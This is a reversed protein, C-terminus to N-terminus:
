QSLVLAWYHKYGHGPTDARALGIRTAQELLLNANHGPSAKWREIAREVTDSGATLNEAAYGNIDYAAMRSGFAGHSLSGAQAVVRAQEIAAQNLRPDVSVAPLGRSVRYRSVLAAATSADATSLKVADAPLIASPNQACQALFPLALLSVLFLRLRMYQCIGITAFVTPSVM